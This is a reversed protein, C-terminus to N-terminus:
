ELIHPIFSGKGLLEERVRQRTERLRDKDALQAVRMCSSGPDGPPVKIPKGPLQKVAEEPSSAFLMRFADDTSLRELLADVAIPDLPDAM